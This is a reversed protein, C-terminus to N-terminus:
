SWDKLERWDALEWHAPDYLTRFDGGWTVRINLRRATEKGILGIVDWQLRSIDWFKGFHVIDVALGYQHPSSGAKARSVGREYAANQEEATRLFQIPFFPMGRAQLDKCFAVQFRLLDPHAGDRSHRMYRERYAAGQVVHHAVLSSAAKQHTSPLLPPPPAKDLPKAAPPRSRLRWLRQIIRHIDFIM